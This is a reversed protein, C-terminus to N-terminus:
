SSMAPNQLDDNKSSISFFPNTRIGPLYTPASRPLSSPLSKKSFIDWLAMDIGAFAQGLLGFKDLLTYRNRLKEIQTNPDIVEDIIGECVTNILDATPKLMDERFTFVYSNGSIDINTDIKLVVFNGYPIEGTSAKPKIRLPVKVPYTHYKKIKLNTM